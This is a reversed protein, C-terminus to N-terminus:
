PELNLMEPHAPLHRELADLRSEWETEVAQLWGAAEVLPRPTLRYHRERGRHEVAVVGADRLVALHKAVAQRSIPLDGALATATVPAEATIRGILYRRTPDALAVFTADKGPKASVTDPTDSAVPSLRATSTM